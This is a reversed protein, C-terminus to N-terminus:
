FLFLKILTTWHDLVLTNLSILYQKTFSIFYLQRIPVDNLLDMATFM